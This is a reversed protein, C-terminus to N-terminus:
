TLPGTAKPSHLPQPYHNTAAAHVDEPRFLFKPRGHNPNDRRTHAIPLHGKRAWRLIIAPSTGVQQAAQKADILNPDNRTKHHRAYNNVTHLDIAWGKGPTKTGTLTGNHLLERVRQPRIGILDAAQRVTITLEM